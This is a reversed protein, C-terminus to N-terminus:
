DEPPAPPPDTEATRPDSKPATAMALQGFVIGTLIQRTQPSDLGAAKCLMLFGYTRPSRAKMGALEETSRDRFFHTMLSSVIHWLLLLLGAHKAWELGQLATEKM